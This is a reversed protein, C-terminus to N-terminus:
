QERFGDKGAPQVASYPDTSANGINAYGEAIQQIGFGSGGAEVTIDVNKNSKM